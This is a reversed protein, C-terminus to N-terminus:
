LGFDALLDDADRQTSAARDVGSLLRTEPGTAAGAEAPQIGAAILAKRLAGEARQTVGMVHRIVQGTLDQYAQAQQLETLIARMRAAHAPPLGLRALEAIEARLADALDLTTHAARETLAAVADLRAAADPLEHGALAALRDEFPAAGLAARLEREVAALTRCLPRSLWHDLASTAAKLAATDAAEVAALAARLAQALGERDVADPALLPVASV